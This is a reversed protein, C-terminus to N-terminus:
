VVISEPGSPSTVLADAVKVKEAVSGFAVNSHRMSKPVKM